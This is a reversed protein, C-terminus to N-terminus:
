TTERPRVRGVRVAVVQEPDIRASSRGYDWLPDTHIRCLIYGSHEGRLVEGPFEGGEFDVVVDDGTNM